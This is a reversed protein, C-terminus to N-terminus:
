PFVKKLSLEELHQEYKKLLNEKLEPEILNSTKTNTFLQLLKRSSDLEYKRLFAQEGNNLNNIDYNLNRILLEIPKKLKYAQNFINQRTKIEEFFKPEENAKTKNPKELGAIDSARNYISKLLSHNLFSVAEGYHPAVENLLNSIRKEALDYEKGAILPNLSKTSELNTFDYNTKAKSYDKPKITNRYTPFIDILNLMSEKYMDKENNSLRRYSSILKELNQYNNNHEFENSAQIFEQSSTNTRAQSISNFNPPITDPVTQNAQFLSGSSLREQFKQRAANIERDSPNIM